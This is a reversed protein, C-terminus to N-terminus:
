FICRCYVMVDIVDYMNVRSYENVFVEVVRNVIIVCVWM